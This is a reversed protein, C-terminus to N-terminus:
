KGNSCGESHDVYSVILLFYRSILQKARCSAIRIYIYTQSPFMWYAWDYITENAYHLLKSQTSANLKILIYLFVQWKVIMADGKEIKPAKCYQTSMTMPCFTELFVNKMSLGQAQPRQFHVLGSKKWVLRFFDM